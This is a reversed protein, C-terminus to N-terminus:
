TLEMPMSTDRMSYITFAVVLGAASILFKWDKQVSIGKAECIAIQRIDASPMRKKGEM